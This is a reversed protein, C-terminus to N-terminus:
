SIDFQCCEDRQSGSNFSIRWGNSKFLEIVRMKVKKWVESSLNSEFRSMDVSVTSGEVFNVLRKNIVAVIDNVAKEIEASSQSIAKSRSIPQNM